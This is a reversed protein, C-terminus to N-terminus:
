LGRRLLRHITRERAIQTVTSGLLAQYLHRLPTM